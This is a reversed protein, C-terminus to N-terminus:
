RGTSGAAGAVSKAVSEAGQKVGEAAKMSSGQLQKAKGKVQHGVDGTIEGYASELKGEVQKSTAAALVVGPSRHAALALAPLPQLISGM